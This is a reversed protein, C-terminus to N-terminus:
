KLYFFYNGGGNGNRNLRFPTGFRQILFQGDHFSDNM